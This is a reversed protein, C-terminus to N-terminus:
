DCRLARIPEVRSARRAPIAVAALAVGSFVTAAMVYSVPDGATVGFLLTSVFGRLGAAAVMGAGLGVVVLLAGQWFLNFFVNRRAAGLALRIGIEHTRQSVIYAILGYLGIAALAVALVAFSAVMAAYLRPRALADALYQDMTKVSSVAQTPDVEHIARRIAMAQASPEGTTRVVLNTIYGPTQAHLLFVTPAPETTLGNHRADGVVGIIEALEQNSSAVLIRRGLVRGDPFYRRSFSQNIVLVRPSEIRDRRDFARGELLPIGMAAFYGRSVLSCDTPLAESPNGRPQGEFWFGTGCTWGTLPLFQITSAAKVGPMTEVRDLIRDILAIRAEPPRVGLFLGMTVTGDANFGPHVRALSTFTRLLLTGGVLLVVALAVEGVVLMGRMRHHRRDATAARSQQRLATHPEVHSGQWAPMFGFALATAISVVVTFALCTADLRIPETTGVSLVGATLTVLAQTSWYALLLGVAGGCLALVLSEVVLQGVLRGRSAGLSARLALEGRRAMGRAMLLGALNACAIVLVTAVVAMLLQLAPRAERVLYEHLGSVFVGFGRDVPYERALASAIVEMEARAADLTVASKLRGFCQFSRSGTAGPNAPDIALPTYADPETLGIRLAPPAVGVITLSGDRVAWRRGLVGPDGGFWRQWFGYGLIVVDARGPRTEDETFERGLIPRVGFVRFLESTTQIRSIQEAGNSGIVDLPPTLVLALAEFSRARARWQLFNFPHVHVTGESALPRERLIVMRDSRPYPLPRLLVANVFTFITTNAGIGLALSLIAVVTFGPSKRLARVAYAADQRAIDLLALGRADRCEEKRQDIGGMERLAAYRADDPAMGSAIYDEVLHEVHYRFEEDLEQEMRSRHM